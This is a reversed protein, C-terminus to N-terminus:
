SYETPWNIKCRENIENANSASTIITSNSNERQLFKDYDEQNDTFVLYNDNLVLEEDNLYIYKSQIVDFEVISNYDHNM